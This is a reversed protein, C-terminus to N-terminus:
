SRAGLGIHLLAKDSSRGMGLTVLHGKVPLLVASAGASFDSVAEVLPTAFFFIQKLPVYEGFPVLHMKRYVGGVSGNDAVLFASNYYRAGGPTREVQDSGILIPVRAQRALLRLQDAAGQEDEFYFPTSSEPWVVFEAGERVAQRTMRLYDGFISRVHAPDYKLAQDINGQV